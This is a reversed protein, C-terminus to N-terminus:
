CCPPYQAPGGGRRGSRWIRRAGARHEDVNGLVRLLARGDEVKFGGLRAGITRMGHQPPPTAAKRLGGFQNAVGLAGHDEGAVADDFGAGHLLHARQGLARLNGNAERQEAQACKGGRMREVQAHHAHVALRPDVVGNLFGVQQDGAAHAEVIADGAGEGGVGGLRLLNM